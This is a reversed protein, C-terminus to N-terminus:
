HLKDTQMPAYTRIYQHPIYLSKLLKPAREDLFLQMAKQQNILFGSQITCDAMTFVYFLLAFYGRIYCIWRAHGNCFFVGQSKNKPQAQHTIKSPTDPRPTFGNVCVSLIYGIYLHIASLNRILCPFLSEHLLFNGCLQIENGYVFQLLPQYSHFTM